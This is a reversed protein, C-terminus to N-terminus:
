REKGQEGEVGWNEEELVKVEREGAGGGSGLKGGKLSEGRKGRSGRWEGSLNLLFLYNLLTTTSKHLFM